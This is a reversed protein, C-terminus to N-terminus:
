TEEGEREGREKLKREYGDRFDELMGTIRGPRVDAGMLHVLNVYYDMRRRLQNADTMRFMPSVWLNALILIVEAMERPYETRITGDEMGQRIIPEVFEPAVEDSISAFQMGLLRSNKVPDPEIALEASLPLQPGEMSSEFLAQLKELGTMRPDDRIAVLKRMLPESQRDIAASLIEEKSKFHHYLAGKTVDLHDVIDQITTADYGKELFLQMAADLIRSVTEEPHKNRAM